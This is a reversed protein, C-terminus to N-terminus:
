WVEPYGIDVFAKEMKFKHGREMAALEEFTKKMSPDTCGAALDSYHRMADEEKKMALAFADAPSMADGVEPAPTTEAVRYDRDEAFPLSEPVADRFGELITQHRKEEAVFDTFLDKLFTDTMRDAVAQYFTQAEIESQIANALIEKYENPKM